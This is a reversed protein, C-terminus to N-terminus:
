NERITLSSFNIDSAINIGTNESEFPSRDSNFSYPTYDPDYCNCSANNKEMFYVVPSNLCANANSKLLNVVYFLAIIVSIILVVYLIDFIWSKLSKKPKQPIETEWTFKNVLNTEPPKTENNEM